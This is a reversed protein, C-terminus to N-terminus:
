RCILCKSWRSSVNNNCSCVLFEFTVYFIAGNGCAGPGLDLDLKWGCDM